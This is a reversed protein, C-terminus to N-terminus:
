NSSPDPQEPHNMVFVPRGEEAELERRGIEDSVAKVMYAFDREAQPYAALYGYFGQVQPDNQDNGEQALRRAMEPMLRYAQEREMPAWGECRASEVFVWRSCIVCLAMHEEDPWLGEAIRGVSDGCYTVGLEEPVGGRGIM